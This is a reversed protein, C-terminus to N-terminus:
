TSNTIHELLIYITNSHFNWDTQSISPTFVLRQQSSQDHTIKQQIIYPKNNIFFIQQHNNEKMM